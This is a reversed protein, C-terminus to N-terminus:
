DLGIFWRSIHISIVVVIIIIFIVFVALILISSVVVVVIIMIVSSSLLVISSSPIISVVIFIVSASVSVVVLSSSSTSSATVVLRVGVVTARLINGGLIVGVLVGRTIRKLTCSSPSVRDPSITAALGIHTSDVRIISRSIDVGVISVIIISESLILPAAAISLVILLVSVITCPSVTTCLLIIIISVGGFVGTLVVLCLLRTRAFMILGIIWWGRVRIFVISGRSLLIDILQTLLQVACMEGFGFLPVSLPRVADCFIGCRIGTFSSLPSDIPGSQIPCFIHVFVQPHGGSSSVFLVSAPGVVWRRRGFRVARTTFLVRRGWWRGGRRCGGVGVGAASM